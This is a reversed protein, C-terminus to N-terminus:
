CVSNQIRLFYNRQTIFANIPADPSANISQLIIALLLFVILILLSELTIVAYTYPRSHIGRQKCGVKYWYCLEVDLFPVSSINKQKERIIRQQGRNIYPPLIIQQLRKPKEFQHM